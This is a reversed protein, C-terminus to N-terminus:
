LTIGPPNGSGDHSDTRFLVNADEAMDQLEQNLFADPDNRGTESWDNPFSGTVNIDISYEDDGTLGNDYALTLTVQTEDRFRQLLDVTEDTARIKEYTVDPNLAGPVYDVPGDAGIESPLETGTEITVQTNQAKAMTDAGVDFSAERNSFTTEPLNPVSPSLTTNSEPPGGYGGALSVEPSADQSQDITCSVITMGSLMEYESFGETPAYGRLTVPDNGNDLDYDFEYLSGAINTSTPQGFIGALWWPPTNINFSAGWGGDFNQAIIEAATRSANYKRVAQHGGEFTDMTLDSGFTKFTTDNPSTDFGQDEFVYVFDGHFGRRSVGM